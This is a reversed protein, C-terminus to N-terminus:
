NGEAKWRLYKEFIRYIMCEALRRSGVPFVQVKYKIGWSVLSNMVSKYNMLTREPPTRLGEWTDEIVLAAYEFEALREFEREFRKRGSGLSQFLDSKSKREVAIRDEYGEISYDGTILGNRITTVPYTEFEYPKQERTDVIITFAAGAPPKKVAKAPIFLLDSCPGLIKSLSIQKPFTKIRSM